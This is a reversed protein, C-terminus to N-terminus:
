SSGGAGGSLQNQPSNRRRDGGSRRGRGRRHEGVERREVGTRREDVVEAGARDEVAAIAEARLRPANRLRGLAIENSVTLADALERGSLRYWARRRVLLAYLTAAILLAALVLAIPM